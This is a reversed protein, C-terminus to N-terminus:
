LSGTEKWMHFVLLCVSVVLLPLSTTVRWFLLLLDQLQCAAAGLRDLDGNESFFTVKLPLLQWDWHSHAAGTLESGENATILAPPHVQFAALALGLTSELKDEACKYSGM